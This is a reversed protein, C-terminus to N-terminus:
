WGLFKNIKSFVTDYKDTVDIHPANIECPRLAPGLLRREGVNKLDDNSFSPLQSAVIDRMVFPITKNIDTASMNIDVGTKRSGISLLDENSFGDDIYHTM